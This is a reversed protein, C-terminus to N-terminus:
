LVLLASTEIGEDESINQIQDVEIFPKYNRAVTLQVWMIRAVLQSVSQSVLLKSAMEEKQLRLVRWAMTVVSTGLMHIQIM